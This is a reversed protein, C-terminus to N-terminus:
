DYLIPQRNSRSFIEGISGNVSLLLPVGSIGVVLAITWTMTIWGARERIYGAFFPGALSGAASASSMLGYILGLAVTDNQGSVGPPKRLIDDAVSTIEVMIATTAAGLCSGLLALITCLLVMQGITKEVILRLLAVLLAACFMGGAAFYRCSNPFRDIVAGVLPDFINPISISLFVLGQGTQNWGFTEQVFLPLVSDFATLVFIVVFYGWFAVSLRHSKLFALLQQRKETSPWKPKVEAHDRNINQTMEMRVDSGDDDCPRTLEQDGECSRGTRSYKVARKREIMSLWLIIDVGILSFVLIFVANYGLSHYIIGGLLPGTVIGFNLATNLYGFAQGLGDRGMTDVVLANGVTSIIGASTGSLLRGAIWLGIRNGVCLLTASSIMAIIGLFCPM